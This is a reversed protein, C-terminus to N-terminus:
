KRIPAEAQDGADSQRWRDITPRYTADGWHAAKGQDPGRAIMGYHRMLRDLALGLVIRATRPPWRRQREIQEIGVDLCCVDILLGAFEPGADDLARRVREQAAAAGTRLDGAVGHRTEAAFGLKARDWNATVRPMMQGALFDRALREGAEVQPGSLVPAGKADRKHRLRALPSLGGSSRAAGSPATIPPTANPARASAFPLDCTTTPGAGRRLTVAGHETLRFSGREAASIWGADAAAQVTGTAVTAPKAAHGDRRMAGPVAIVYGGGAETSLLRAGKRTLRALLALVDPTPVPGLTTM